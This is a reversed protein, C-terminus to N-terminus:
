VRQHKVIAPIAQPYALYYQGIFPMVKMFDKAPYIFNIFIRINFKVKM